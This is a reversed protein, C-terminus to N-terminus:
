LTAPESEAKGPSPPILDRVFREVGSNIAEAIQRRFLAHGAEGQYAKMENFESKMLFDHDYLCHEETSDMVRFRLVFQASVLERKTGQILKVKRVDARLITWDNNTTESAQNKGGELIGVEPVGNTRLASQLMEAVRCSAFEQGLEDICSRWKKKTAKGAIGGALAAFPLAALDYAFVFANAEGPLVDSGPVFAAKMYDGAARASWHPPEFSEPGSSALAIHGLELFSRNSALGYTPMLQALM